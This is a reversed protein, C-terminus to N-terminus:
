IVLLSDAFGVSLYDFTFNYRKFFCLIIQVLPLDNIFDIVQIFFTETCHLFTISIIRAVLPYQTPRGCAFYRSRLRKEVNRPLTEKKIGQKNNQQARTVTHIVIRQNENFKTISM